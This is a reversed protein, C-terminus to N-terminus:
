NGREVLHVDDTERTSAQFKEVVRRMVGIQKETPTFAGRKIRGCISICFDREWDSIGSARVIIPMYGLLRAIEGQSAPPRM